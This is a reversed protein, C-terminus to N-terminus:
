VARAPNVADPQQHTYQNCPPDILTSNIIHYQNEREMSIRCYNWYLAGLDRRLLNNMFIERESM